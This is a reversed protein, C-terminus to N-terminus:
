NPKVRSYTYREGDYYGHDIILTDNELSLIGPSGSDGIQINLTPSGLLEDRIEYKPHFTADKKDMEIYDGESSFMVYTPNKPITETRIRGTVSIKELKWQGVIEHVNVLYNLKQVNTVM